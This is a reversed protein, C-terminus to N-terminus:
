VERQETLTKTQCQCQHLGSINNRLLTKKIHSSPDFANNAKPLFFLLLTRCHTILVDFGSSLCQAYKLM